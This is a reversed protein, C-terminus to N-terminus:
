NTFCSKLVAERVSKAPLLSTKFINGLMSVLVQAVETLVKLALALAKSFVLTNHM